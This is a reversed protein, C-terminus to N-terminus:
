RSPSLPCGRTAAGGSARRHLILVMVSGVFPPSPSPSLLTGETSSSSMSSPSHESSSSSSPTEKAVGANARPSVRRRAEVTMAADGRADGSSGIFQRGGGGGGGGGSCTERNVARQIKAGAADGDGQPGDGDGQPGDGEARHKGDLGRETDGGGGGGTSYSSSSPSAASSSSISSSASTARTPRSEKMSKLLDPVDSNPVGGDRDRRRGGATSDLASFTLATERSTGTSDREGARGCSSGSVLATM